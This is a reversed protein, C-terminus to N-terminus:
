RGPARLVVGRGAPLPAAPPAVIRVADARARTLAREGTDVPVAECGATRLVDALLERTTADPEVVLIRNSGAPQVRM